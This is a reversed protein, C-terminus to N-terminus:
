VENAGPVVRTGVLAGCGELDSPDGVEVIGSGQCERQVVRVLEVQERANEDIGGDLVDGRLPFEFQVARKVLSFGM